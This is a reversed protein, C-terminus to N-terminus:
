DYVESLFSKIVSHILPFDILTENDKGLVLSEMETMLSVCTEIRTM